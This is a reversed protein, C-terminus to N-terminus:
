HILLKKSIIPKIIRHVIYEQSQYRFVVIDGCKYQNKRTLILIDQNKLIPNMSNGRVFIEAKILMQSNYILSKLLALEVM